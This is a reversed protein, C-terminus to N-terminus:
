KLLAIQPVDYIPHRYIATGCEYVAAINDSTLVEEVDGSAYVSGEKLLILKECFLAALNIDHLVALVTLGKARLTSLLTLLELQHKIDLHTTPEDLALIEADQALSMALRARQKEGGSLTSLPREALEMLGGQEIAIQIAARDETSEEAFLSQHPLRGLAILERVTIDTSFHHEQEVVALKRALARQSLDHISHGGIIITGSDPKYWRSLLKLFTSKGAGNPGLIGTFTHAPVSLSVNRLIIEASSFAFSLNEVIIADRAM